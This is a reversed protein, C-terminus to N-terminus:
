REVELYDLIEGGLKHEKKIAKHVSKFEKRTEEQFPIIIDQVIKNITQTDNKTLM